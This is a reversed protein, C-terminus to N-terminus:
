GEDVSVPEPRSAFLVKFRVIDAVELAEGEDGDGGERKRLVALPKTLKKVEGTMRQHKGVYLYVRKMWAGGEKAAPDTPDYLPFVLRGVTTSSTSAPATTADPINEEDHEALSPMNITGQLEVIALGSPTQLLQPLPNNPDPSTTSAGSSPPYIPISPM